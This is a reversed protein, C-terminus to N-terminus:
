QVAQDATAISEPRVFYTGIFYITNDDIFQYDLPAASSNSSTNFTFNVTNGEITYSGKYTLSYNSTYDLFKITMYGNDYFNVRCMEVGMDMAVWEGLLKEDPKFDNPLEIPPLDLKSQSLTYESGDYQSIHLEQNNLIKSGTITYPTPIGAQFIGVSVSVSLTDGSETGKEKNYLGEIEYSGMYSKFVNDKDFEFYYRSTVNNGEEDVVPNGESDIMPIDTAWIVGEPERLFFGTYVFYAILVALVLCASIIVPTQIRRKKKPKPEQETETEEDEDAKTEDSEGSDVEIIEDAEEKEADTENISEEIDATETEKETVTEEKIEKEEDQVIEPNNNENM